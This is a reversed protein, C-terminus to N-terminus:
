PIDVDVWKIHKVQGGPLVETIAIPSCVANNIGYHKKGCMKGPGYVTKVAKMKRWTKAVKTTDLSQAEEIVQALLWVENWGWLNWQHFKGLKAQATRIVVKLEPPLNPDNLDKSWGHTFFPAVMDKGALLVIDYPNDYNAMAIPGKFGQERTGKIIQGTAAEFGNVVLIADPKPALLATAKPYFDVTDHPWLVAVVQKLGREEAAKACM